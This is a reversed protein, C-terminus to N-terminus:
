RKVSIVAATRIRTSIPVQSASDQLPTEDGSFCVGASPQGERDAAIFAALHPTTCM